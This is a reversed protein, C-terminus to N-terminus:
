AAPRFALAGSELWHAYLRRVRYADGVIGECSEPATGKKAEGWVSRAFTTDKEEEPLSPKSDAPMMSSGDPVLARDQQFEDHRRMAELITAVVELEEGGEASSAEGSTKQFHFSGSQPREFLQCVADLGRLKGMECHRIKGQHMLVLARNRGNPDTFVLRGTLESDAMSQLLNPLGFLELDGKMERSAESEPTTEVRSKSRAARAQEAFDQDPFREEIEQFLKQVRTDTTGSLGQILYSVEHVRRGVVVGLLRAPLKKRLTTLLTELEDPLSTLDCTELHRLRRLTDGLQPEKRFGHNIVAQMAAPTGFRALATCTRDLIELTEEPDYPLTDDIAGQEFVGLRDILVRETEPVKLLALASVAEKTLLLPQEPRSCETLMDLEREQPGGAGCPIRRLLFVANRSYYGHEDALEGSLYRGLREVLQPRCPPGHVELLSLMLRRLERKPEGDLRELLQGPSFAPFFRLVKRLLGHKAQSSAFRRLAAMSVSGEARGRVISALQADMKKEDILSQAVDFMAVAQALHGDNFQEIAAYVMGSFRETGEEPTAALAVIQHMARLLHGLPKQDAGGLQTLDVDWGPLRKGLQKFVRDLEPEIGMQRVRDLSAAFEKSDGSEIAARSVLSALVENSVGETTKDGANELESGHVSELRNMLTAVRPSIMVKPGAGAADQDRAQQEDLVKQIEEEEEESGSERNLLSVPAALRTETEGIRSLRLKLETQEREPCLGVLLRSLQAVYLQMAAPEVLKLESFLHIKKVAHYLYSSVTVARDPASLQAELWHQVATAGYKPPLRLLAAAADVAMMPAIEDALYRQMDLLAQRTADDTTGATSM